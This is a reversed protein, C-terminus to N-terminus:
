AATLLITQQINFLIQSFATSAQKLYKVPMKKSPGLFIQLQGSVKM